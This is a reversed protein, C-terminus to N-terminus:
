KGKTWNGPLFYADGLMKNYSVAPLELELLAQEPLCDGGGRGAQGESEDLMQFIFGSM